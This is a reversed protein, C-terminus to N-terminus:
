ASTTELEKERSHLNQNILMCQEYTSLLLDLIQRRQATIVHRKGGFELEIGAQSRDHEQLSRNALLYDVRKLLYDREYPKTVFNDAGCEFGRIVDSSDALATLLIIPIQQLKANAKIQEALEFGNVEPMLVDAVILDPQVTRLQKLAEKGNGAILCSFGKEELYLCLMQAQTPSDEVVMILPKKNRGPSSPMEEM